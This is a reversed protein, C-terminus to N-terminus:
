RSSTSNTVAVEALARDALPFPYGNFKSSGGNLRQEAWRAVDPTIIVNDSPFRQLACSRLIALSGNVICRCSMCHSAINHRNPPMLNKGCAEIPGWIKNGVIAAQQTTSLPGAPPFMAFFNETSQSGLDCDCTFGSQFTQKAAPGVRLRYLTERVSRKWIPLSESPHAGM